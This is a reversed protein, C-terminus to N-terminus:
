TVLIPLQAKRSQLPMVEILMGLLTVVMSDLAKSRQVPKVLKYIPDPTVVM